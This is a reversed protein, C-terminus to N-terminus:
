DVKMYILSQLELYIFSRVRLSFNNYFFNSSKYSTSLPILVMTFHLPNKNLKVMFVISLMYILTNKKKEAPSLAHRNTCDNHLPPWNENCCKFMPNTIKSKRQKTFLINNIIKSPSQLIFFTTKRESLEYWIM